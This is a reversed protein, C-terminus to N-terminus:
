SLFIWSSMERLGLPNKYALWYKLASWFTESAGFQHRTVHKRASNDLKLVNLGLLVDEMALPLPLILDTSFGHHPLCPSDDLRGFNRLSRCAKPRLYFQPRQTSFTLTGNRKVQRSLRVAHQLIHSENITPERPQAIM